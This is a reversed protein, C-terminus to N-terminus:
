KMVPATIVGHLVEELSDLTISDHDVDNTELKYHTEDLQYVVVVKRLKQKGEENKQILLVFLLMMTGLVIVLITMLIHATTDKM